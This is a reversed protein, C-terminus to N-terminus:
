LREANAAVRRWRRLEEALYSEAIHPNAYATAAREHAWAAAVHNAAEEGAVSIHILQALEALAPAPDFTLETM